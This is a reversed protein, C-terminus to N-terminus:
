SSPNSSPGNSYRTGRDIRLRRVRPVIMDSGSISGKISDHYVTQRSTRRREGDDLQKTSDIADIEPVGEIAGCTGPQSRRANNM